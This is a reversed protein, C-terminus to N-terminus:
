TCRCIGSDGSRESSLAQACPATTPRCVRCPLGEGDSSRAWLAGPSSRSPSGSSLASSRALSSPVRVGSYFALASVSRSLCRCSCCPWTGAFGVRGKLLRGLLTRVGRKGHLRAVILIGITSPVLSGLVTLVFGLPGPMRDGFIVLPMWLSWSVAYTLAFFLSVPHRQVTTLRRSARNTVMPTSM